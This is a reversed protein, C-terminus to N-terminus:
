SLSPVIWTPCSVECRQSAISFESLAGELREGESIGLDFLSVSFSSPSNRLASYICNRKLKSKGDVEVSFCHLADLFIARDGIDYVVTWEELEEDLKMQYVKYFQSPSYAFLEMWNSKVLLLLEECSVLLQAETHTELNNPPNIVLIVELTEGDLVVVERTDDKLIYFKTKYFIIGSAVSNRM